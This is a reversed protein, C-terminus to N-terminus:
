PTKAAKTIAKTDAPTTVTIPSYGPSTATVQASVLSGITSVGNVTAPITLTANTEGPVAVGGILWQYTFAPDPTWNGLKITMAGGVKETGAVIPKAPPQVITGLAVSATPDSSVSQRDYGAKTSTVVVTVPQGVDAPALTYTKTGTGVPQGGVEWQYSFATTPTWPSATATLKQGVAATGSITPAPTATFAKAAPIPKTPPSTATASPVYGAQWATVQVSIASGAQADTPVFTSSTAGAIPSGAALWQYHLHTDPGTWPTAVATLTAGVKATGTIAVSGNALAVPLENIVNVLTSSIDPATLGGSVFDISYQGAPTGPPVVGDLSLTGDPAVTGPGLDYRPDGPLAILNGGSWDLGSGNGPDLFAEVPGPTLESASLGLGAGPAIPDPSWTVPPGINITPNDNDGGFVTRVHTGPVTYQGLQVPTGDPDSVFELTTGPWPPVSQQATEGPALTVDALSGIVPLEWVDQMVGQTELDAELGYTTTQTGTNTVSLTMSNFYFGDQTISIAVDGGAPSTYVTVPEANAASPIAVAAIVGLVVAIALNRRATPRVPTSFKPSM